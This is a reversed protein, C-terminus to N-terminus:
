TGIGSLSRKASAVSPQPPNALDSYFIYGKGGKYDIVKAEKQSTGDLVEMPPDM